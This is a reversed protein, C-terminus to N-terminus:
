TKHPRRKARYLQKRELGRLGQSTAAFFGSDKAEDHWVIMRGSEKFWLAEIETNKAKQVFGKARCSEAFIDEAIGVGGGGGPTVGFKSADFGWPVVNITTLIMAMIQVVVKTIARRYVFAKKVRAKPQSSLLHIPLRKGIVGFSIKQYNSAHKSQYLEM